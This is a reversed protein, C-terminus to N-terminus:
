PEYVVFCLWVQLLEPTVVNSDDAEHPVRFIIQVLSANVNERRLPLPAGLNGVFRRRTCQRLDGRALCAVHHAILNFSHDHLRSVYGGYCISKLMQIAIWVDHFLHAGSGSTADDLIESPVM